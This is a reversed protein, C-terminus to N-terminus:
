LTNLLTTIREQYRAVEAPLPQPTAPVDGRSVSRMKRDSWDTMWRVSRDKLFPNANVVAAGMIELVQAEPDANLATHAGAPGLFHALYLRGPTVQHGRAQLFAENERALNAVMTRSLAPDFRLELLEARSLSAVLDPRYTRMMRLWTSEIFQGLGTATSRTNKARADGASEVRIIQNVLATVSASSGGGGSVGLPDVHRGNILMEFHLHPGTSRGTTGVYGILDGASVQTGSSIDPAFRDLHAYRTQVQNAHDLYIINGFSDSFDARTVKGAAAAYVPTGVPAAWDVGTHNVTRGLVPHNQLGFGATKTGSVPVAFGHGIGIGGGGARSAGYCGFPTNDQPPKVVFCEFSTPGSTVEAYLVRGAPAFGLADQTVLLRLVDQELTIRDLDQARSLMVMLEGVLEPPLGNRLATSYIADKLRVEGSTGRARVARDALNRLDQAFWPDAASEFRGPGVQGITTLYADASYLSLHLLQAGFRNPLRRIAVLGGAHMTTLDESALGSRAAHRSIYSMVRSVEEADFGEEGLIESLPREKELHVLTDSYLLDRSASQLSVVQTTTDAIVTEVYSVTSIAQGAGGVIEGWSGPDDTVTVTAGESVANTQVDAVRQRRTTAIERRAQFAALDSSSSPLTLQVQQSTDLLADVILVVADGRRARQQDLDSQLVISRAGAVPGDPLTIIMPEGRIDLFAEAPDILLNIGAQASGESQVMVNGDDFTGQGGGFPWVSILVTIILVPLALLALPVTASRLLRRRRRQRAAKSAGAFNPDIEIKSM